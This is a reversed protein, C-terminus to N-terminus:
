ETKPQSLEILVGGTSRPHVFAILKGQAGERPTEDILRMGARRCRDLAAPLDGVELCIHHIGEGRKELFKGIPGDPELSELLELHTEGVSLFATRVRQDEVVEEHEVALGLGETYLSVARGLDRVAIGIHDLKYPKQSM